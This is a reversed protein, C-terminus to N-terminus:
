INAEQYVNATTSGTYTQGDLVYSLTVKITRILTRGRETTGLTSASVIGNNYDYSVGAGSTVRHETGASVYSFTYSLNPNVSGGGAPIDSYTLSISWGNVNLSAAEQSFTIDKNSSKGNASLTVRVVFGGRATTVTNKTATVKNGSLSFGAASAQVAYTYTGSLTTSGTSHSGSTYTDTYTQKGGTPNITYSGGDEGFTYSSALSFTPADYRLRPPTTM